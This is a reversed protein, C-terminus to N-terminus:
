DFNVKTAKVASNDLEKLRDLINEVDAELATIRLDLYDFDKIYDTM